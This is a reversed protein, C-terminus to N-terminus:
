AHAQTVREETGEVMAVDELELHSSYGPTGGESARVTSQESNPIAKFDM